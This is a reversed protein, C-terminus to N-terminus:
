CEIVAEVGSRRGTDRKHAAKAAHVFTEHIANINEIWDKSEFKKGGEVLADRNVKWARCTAVFFVEIYAQKQIPTLKPETSIAEVRKLTALAFVRSKKKFMSLIAPNVGMAWPNPINFSQTAKGTM